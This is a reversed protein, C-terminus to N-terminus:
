GGNLHVNEFPRIREKGQLVRREHRDRQREERSDDHRQHRRGPFCARVVIDVFPSEVESLARSYLLVKWVDASKSTFCYGKAIKERTLGLRVGRRPRAIGILEELKDGREHWTMTQCPVAAGTVTLRGAIEGPVEVPHNGGIGACRLQRFGNRYRLHLIADCLRFGTTQLVARDVERRNRLRQM